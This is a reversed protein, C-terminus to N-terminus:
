VNNSESSFSQETTKVAISFLSNIIVAIISTMLFFTWVNM